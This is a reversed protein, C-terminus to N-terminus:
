PNHTYIPNSEILLLDIFLKERIYIYQIHPKHSKLTGLINSLMNLGGHCWQLVIFCHYSKYGSNCELVAIFM